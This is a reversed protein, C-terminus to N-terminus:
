RSGFYFLVLGLTIDQLQRPLDGRGMLFAAATGSLVLLRHDGQPRGLRSRRPNAGRGGAPLRFGRGTHVGGPVSVAPAARLSVSGPWRLGPYSDGPHHASPSLAPPGGGRDSRRRDPPSYSRALATDVRRSTFDHALAIMLTETWLLEVARGRALQVIVVSVILMTLLARVSGQPLGLPPRAKPPPPEGVQAHNAIM